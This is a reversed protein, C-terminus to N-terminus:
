FDALATQLKNLQALRKRNRALSKQRAVRGGTSQSCRAYQWAWVIRSREQEQLENLERLGAAGLKGERALREVEGDIPAMGFPVKRLRFIIAICDFVNVEEPNVFPERAM